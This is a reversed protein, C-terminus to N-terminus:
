RPVIMWRKGLIAQALCLRLAGLFMTSIVQERQNMTEAAKVVVDAAVDGLAKWSDATM